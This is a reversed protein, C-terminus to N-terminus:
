GKTSSVRGVCCLWIMVRSITSSLFFFQLQCVVFFGFSPFSRNEVGARVLRWKRAHINKAATPCFDGADGVVVHLM